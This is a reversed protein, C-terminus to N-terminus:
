KFKKKDRKIIAEVNKVEDVIDVHNVIIISKKEKLYNQKVSSFQIGSITIVPRGADPKNQYAVVGIESNGVTINQIDIRSLDEAAIAMNANKIRIDAGKLQAGDKVNIAKNGAGNIYITKVWVKSKMMDLANEGCEEFVCNTITGDSLDIDIADDDM